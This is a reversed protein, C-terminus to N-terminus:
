EELQQEDSQSTGFLANWMYKILGIMSFAVFAGAFKILFLELM